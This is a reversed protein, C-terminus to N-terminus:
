DRKEYGFGLNFKVTREIIFAIWLLLIPVILTFMRTEACGLTSGGLYILTFFLLFKLPFIIKKWNVLTPLFCFVVLVVIIGTFPLRLFTGPKEAKYSFPFNFLMREINSVCNQLYKVPYSKINNIAMQKLLDDRELTKYKIIRDIDKQHRLTILAKSGPIRGKQDDAVFPYEIWSGYEDKYPTTMWYINDGSNSSLYFVRGTLHFTYILFPIITIFATLLIFFGKKLNLSKRKIIWLLGNGILMVLIVYGFIYKTLAIYGLIIGSFIIEKRRNRIELVDFTRTIYFILFCILFSSFVETYIIALYEYLNIYCAWFFSVILSLKFSAIKKLSKFLFIISLYYLIANLLTICVFPLHFAVFPVLIIPYGPGNALDINNPPSYFGNILNHVFFLYRTEDGFTGHTPFILVIAIFVLLFPLFLLFPSKLTDTKKMKCRGM